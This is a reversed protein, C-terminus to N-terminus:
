VVSKRDGPAREVIRAASMEPFVQEVEIRGVYENGRYVLFLTKPTVKKSEGVSLMVQNSGPSVAVIKGDIKPGATHKLDDFSVRTGHFGSSGLKEQEAALEEAIETVRAYVTKLEEHVGDKASVAQQQEDQMQSFLQELSDKQNRLDRNDKEKKAIQDELERQYKEVSDLKQDKEAKRDELVRIFSRTNETILREKQIDDLKESIEKKVGEVQEKLGKIENEKETVMQLTENQKERLKERYDNKQALLSAAMFVYTGTLFLNVVIFVKALTSM